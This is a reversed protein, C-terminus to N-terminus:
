GNARKLQAKGRLSTTRINSPGVSLKKGSVIFNEVTFFSSGLAVYMGCSLVRSMLRPVMHNKILYNFLVIMIYSKMMHM